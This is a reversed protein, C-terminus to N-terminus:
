PLTNSSDDPLERSILEVIEDVHLQQEELEAEKYFLISAIRVATLVAIRQQSKVTVKDAIERMYKDVLQASKVVHQESEDSLLSYKDGFIELQYSKVTKNM